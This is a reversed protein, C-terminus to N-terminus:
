LKAAARLKASRARPNKYVEEDSSVVPKKTLIRIIGEREKSRFINKVIRDELSHYSICVIRGDARLYKDFESLFLELKELENNVAIRLAQFVRTAPHIKQRRPVLKKILDALELTREIRTGRRKLGRIERAIKRAFREEGFTKFISGLEREGLGAVLNRANTSTRTDMRMDLPGDRMFSFGRDPNELQMSSLGLDLLIGDLREINLKEIVQKINVFNENVLVARKGFDKLVERAIECAQQDCDLGVLTTEESAQLISKAHGGAGLTADLYIGRKPKIFYLCEQLLVPVHM